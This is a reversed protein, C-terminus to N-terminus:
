KIYRSSFSNALSTAYDDVTYVVAVYPVAGLGELATVIASGQKDDAACTRAFYHYTDKNSLDVSTSAYSIQTLYITNGYGGSGKSRCIWLVFYM